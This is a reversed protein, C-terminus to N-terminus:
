PMGIKGSVGAVSAVCAIGFNDAMGAMAQWTHMKLWGLLALLSIAVDTIVFVGAVCVIGAM